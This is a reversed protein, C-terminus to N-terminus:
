QGAAPTLAVLAQRAEIGDPKVQLANSFSGAAELKLGRSLLLEGYNYYAAYTKDVWRPTRGEIAEIQQLAGVVRTWDGNWSEDVQAWLQADREPPVLTSETAPQSDVPSPNLATPEPESDPAQPQPKASIAMLTFVGVWLLGACTSFVLLVNLPGALKAVTFGRKPPPDILQVPLSTRPRAARTPKDM